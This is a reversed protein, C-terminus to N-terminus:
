TPKMGKEKEEGWWLSLRTNRCKKRVQFKVPHSQTKLGSELQMKGLAKDFSVNPSASPHLM